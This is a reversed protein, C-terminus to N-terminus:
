KFARNTSKKFLNEKTHALSNQQQKKKKRRKEHKENRAISEDATTSSQIESELCM